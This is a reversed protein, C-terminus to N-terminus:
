YRHGKSITAEQEHYPWSSTADKNRCCFLHQFVVDAFKCHPEKAIGRKSSAVATTAGAACLALFLRQGMM